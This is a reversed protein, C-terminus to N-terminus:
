LSPVNQRSLPFTGWVEHADLTPNMWLVRVRKASRDAAYLRPYLVSTAWADFAPGDSHFFFHSATM